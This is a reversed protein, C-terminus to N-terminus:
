AALSEQRQRRRARPTLLEGWAADEIRAPETTSLFNSLANVLGEPDELHPFHAAGPLTVFRSDPIVEHM